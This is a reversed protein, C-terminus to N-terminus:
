RHKKKDVQFMIKEKVKWRLWFRVVGDSGLAIADGSTKLVRM